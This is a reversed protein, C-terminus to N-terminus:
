VSWIKANTFRAESVDGQSNGVFLGVSGITATTDDVKTLFKQNVYLYLTNGRTIVTLQNSQNQGQKIASSTGGTLVHALSGNQGNTVALTYMGTSTVSFLYMQQGKSDARMILGYTDGKIATIQAQFAVNKYKTANALCITTRGDTLPNVAHLTNGDFACNGPSNVTEWNNDSQTTLPDNSIAQRSTAQTYLAQPDSVTIPPLPPLKKPHTQLIPKVSTAVQVTTPKQLFALYGVAALLAIIFGTGVALLIKRMPSKRIPQIVSASRLVGVPSQQQIYGAAPGNAAAYPFPGSNFAAHQAPSSQMTNPPFPGSNFAAHPAPSSQMAAFPLAGNEPAQPLVPGSQLPPSPFTGSSFAQPQIPGSQLPTPPFSGGPFAQQQIPGSQAPTSSFTGSNYAPPQIPGSQLPASSFSGGPFAQHQIPGSQAPATMRTYDQVQGSGQPRMLQQNDVVPPHALGSTTYPTYPINPYGGQAQGPPFGTTGPRVQMQLPESHVMPNQGPNFVTSPTNPIPAQSANNWQPQPQHNAPNQQYPSGPAPAIQQNAAGNGQWSFQETSPFNGRPSMSQGPQSDPTVSQGCRPCVQTTSTIPLGCSQCHM